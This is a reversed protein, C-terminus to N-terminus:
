ECFNGDHMSNHHKLMARLKERNAPDQMWERWTGNQLAEVLPGHAQIKPGLSSFQKQLGNEGYLENGVDTVKGGAELVADKTKFADSISDGTNELLDAMEEM